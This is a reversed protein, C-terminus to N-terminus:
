KIIEERVCDCTADYHMRIVHSFLPVKAKWDYLTTDDTLYIVDSRGFRESFFNSEQYSFEKSPGVILTNKPLNNRTKILHSFVARAPKEWIFHQKFIDELLIVNIFYYSVLIAVGVIRLFGGRTLFFHWIVIAWFISLLFTPFYLYRNTGPGNIEQFKLFANLFLIVPVSFFCTLLIIRFKRRSIYLLIFLFMYIIVVFLINEKVDEPTLFNQLGPSFLNNVIPQYQLWAALQIGIALPYRYKQPHLLFEFFGWTPGWNGYSIRQLLVIIISVIGFLAGLVMGKLLRTKWSHVLFWAVPYFVFLPTLIIDVHGLKIGLFFSLLSYLYLKIKGSALFLHLFIFSILMIPFNVVREMFFCYCHPGYMDWNGFYNVGAILSSIFAIISSKTIVRVLIYFLSNILLIFVLEFQLYARINVGFVKPIIAGLISAGLEIGTLSKPASGWFRKQEHVLMHVFGDSRIVLDPLLRWAYWSLVLFGIIFFIDRKNLLKKM